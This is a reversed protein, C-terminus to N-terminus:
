LHIHVSEDGMYRLVLDTCASQNARLAPLVVTEPDDIRHWRSALRHGLDGRRTGSEDGHRGTLGPASPSQEGLHGRAGGLAGAADVSLPLDDTTTSTEGEISCREGSTSSAGNGPMTRNSSKVRASSSWRSGRMSDILPLMSDILLIM